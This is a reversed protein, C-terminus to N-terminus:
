HIKRVSITRGGTLSDERWNGSLSPLSGKLDPIQTLSEMENNREISWPLLSNQFTSSDQILITLPAQKTRWGAPNQIYPKYCTRAPNTFEKLKSETCHSTDVTNRESYNLIRDGRSRQKAAKYYWQTYVVKLSALSISTHNYNYGM